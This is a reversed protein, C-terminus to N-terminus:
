HYKCIYYNKFRLELCRLVYCLKESLNSVKQTTVNKRENKVKVDVIAYFKRLALLRFQHGFIKTCLSCVIKVSRFKFNYSAYVHM